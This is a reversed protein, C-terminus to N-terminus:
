AQAHPHLEVAFAGAEEISLEAPVLRHASCCPDQRAPIQRLALQSVAQLAGSDSRGEAVLGDRSEGADPDDVVLPDGAPAGLQERLATAPVREDPVVERATADRFLEDLGRQSGELGLM